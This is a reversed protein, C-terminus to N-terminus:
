QLKKSIKYKVYLTLEETAVIKSFYYNSVSLTRRTYPSRFQFVGGVATPIRGVNELGM